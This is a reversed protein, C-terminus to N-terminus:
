VLELFRRSGDRHSMEFLLQLCCRDIKGITLHLYDRNAVGLQVLDRCNEQMIEWASAGDQAELLNYKEGLM